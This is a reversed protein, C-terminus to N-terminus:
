SRVMERYEAYKYRLGEFDERKEGITEFQSVSIGIAFAARHAAHREIQQGDLIKKVTRRNISLAAAINAQSIGHEQMATLCQRGSLHLGSRRIENLFQKVTM